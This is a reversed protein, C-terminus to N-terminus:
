TEIYGGGNQICLEAYRLVSNTVKRIIEDNGRLHDTSQMLQQLIETQAKALVGHEEHLGV